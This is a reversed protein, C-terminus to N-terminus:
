TRPLQDGSSFDNLYHVLGQWGRGDGLIAPRLRSGVERFVESLAGASMGAPIDEEGLLEVLGSVVVLSRFLRAVAGPGFPPADLPTDHGTAPSPRGSAAEMPLDLLSEVSFQAALQRLTAVWARVRGKDEPEASRQELRDMLQSAMAPIEQSRLELDLLQERLTDRFSEDYLLANAGRDAVLTRVITLGSEYVRGLASAAQGALGAEVGADLLGGFFNSVARPNPPNTFVVEELQDLAPVKM